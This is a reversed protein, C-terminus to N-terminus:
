SKRLQGGRDSFLYQSLYLQVDYGAALLEKLQEVIKALPLPEVEFVSM